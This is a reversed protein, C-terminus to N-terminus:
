RRNKTRHRNIENDLEKEQIYKALKIYQNADQKLAKIELVTEQARIAATLRREKDESNHITNEAVALDFMRRQIIQDLRKLSHAECKKHFKELTCYTTAMQSSLFEHVENAHNFVKFGDPSRVIRFRDFALYDNKRKVIINKRVQGLSEHALTRLRKYAEAQHM